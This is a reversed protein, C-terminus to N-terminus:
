LLMRGCAHCLTSTVGGAVGSPLPCSTASCGLVGAGRGPQPRQGGWAPPRRSVPPRRGWPGSGRSVGADALGPSGPPVAPSPAVPRSLRASETRAKLSHTPLDFLLPAQAAGRRCGASVVGCTKPCALLLAGTPALGPVGVVGHVGRVGHVWTGWAGWMGLAGWAGGHVGNEWAGWVRNQPDPRSEAADGRPLRSQGLGHLAPAEKGAPFREGM